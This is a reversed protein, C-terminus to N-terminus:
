MYHVRKENEKKGTEFEMSATSTLLDTTSPHPMKSKVHSSIFHSDRMHVKHLYRFYTLLYPLYTLYIYTIYTLYTPLTLSTCTPYM